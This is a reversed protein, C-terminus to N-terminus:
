HLEWDSLWLLWAECIRWFWISFSFPFQVNKQAQGGGAFLSIDLQIYFDDNFYEHLIIM